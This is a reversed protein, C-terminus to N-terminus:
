IYYPNGGKKKIRGGGRGSIDDTLHDDVFVAFGQVINM